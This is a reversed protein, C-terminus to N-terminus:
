QGDLLTKAVATIRKRAEEPARILMADLSDADPSYYLQRTELGLAVAIQRLMSVPMPRSGTLYRSLRDDAIGIREALERQPIDLHQLWKGIYLDRLSEPTKTATNSRAKRPRQSIPTKAMDAVIGASFDARWTAVPLKRAQSITAATDIMACSM